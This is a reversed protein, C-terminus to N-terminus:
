SIQTKKKGDNYINLSGPKHIKMFLKGLVSGVQQLATTIHTPYTGSDNDTRDFTYCGASIKYQLIHNCILITNGSGAKAAVLITKKKYSENLFNLLNKHLLTKFRTVPISIKTLFIGSSDMYQYYKYGLVSRSCNLIYFFIM